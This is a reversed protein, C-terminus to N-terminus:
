ALLKELDVYQEINKIDEPHLHMGAYPCPDGDEWKPDPPPPAVELVVEIMEKLFDEQIFHWRGKLKSFIEHHDTEVNFNAPNYTM